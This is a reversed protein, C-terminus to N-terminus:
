KKRYIDGILNSGCVYSQRIHRHLNTKWLPLFYAFYLQIHVIELIYNFSYSEFNHNKDKNQILNQLPFYKLHNQFLKLHPWFMSLPTWIQIQIKKKWKFKSILLTKLNQFISSNYYNYNITITYLNYLM